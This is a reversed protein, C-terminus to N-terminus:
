RDVLLKGKRREVVANRVTLHIDLVSRIQEISNRGQNGEGVICLTPALQSGRKPIESEFDDIQGAVIFVHLAMEVRNSHFRILAIESSFGGTHTRFTHFSSRCAPL